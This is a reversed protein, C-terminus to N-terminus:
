IYNGGLIFEVDYFFWDVCIYVYVAERARCKEILTITFCARSDNLLEYFINELAVKMVLLPWGLNFM